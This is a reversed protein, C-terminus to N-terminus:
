SRSKIIELITITVEDFRTLRRSVIGLIKVNDGEQLREAPSYLMSAAIQGTGDSIVFQPRALWNLRQRQIRGEILVVLGLDNLSIDRIMRKSATKRHENALQHFTSRNMRGILLPILYLVTVMMAGLVLIIFSMTVLFVFVVLLAWLLVVGLALRSIQVM